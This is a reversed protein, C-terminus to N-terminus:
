ASPPEATLLGDNMLEFVLRVVEAASLDGPPADKLEGLTLVEQLLFAEVLPQARLSLEWRHQCAEIVFSDGSVELTLEKAPSTLSLRFDENAFLDQDLSFPLLHTQPAMLSSYHRRWFREFFEQTGPKRILDVLHEIVEESMAAESPTRPRALDRRLVPDHCAWEGLAVLVDFATRNTFGCTLHISGQGTSKAHHWWGRPLYLVDGRRLIGTWALEFDDSLTDCEVDRFLPSERSPKYLTWEKEGETQVIFVDHDDWHTTFCRDSTWSVYANIVVSEGVERILQRALEQAPTHYGEVSNLLISYGERLARGVGGALVWGGFGETDMRTYHSRDARKGEKSVQILEIRRSSQSLLDNMQRWSMLERRALRASHGIAYTKSRVEADFREPTLGFAEALLDLRQAANADPSALLERPILTESM